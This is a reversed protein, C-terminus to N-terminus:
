ITNNLSNSNKRKCSLSLELNVKQACLFPRSKSLLFFFHCTHLQKLIEVKTVKGGGQWNEKDEWGEKFLTWSGKGYSWGSCCSCLQLPMNQCAIILSCLVYEFTVNIFHSGNWSLRDWAIQTIHECFAHVYALHHAPLLRWWFGYNVHNCSTDWNGDGFPSLSTTSNNSPM